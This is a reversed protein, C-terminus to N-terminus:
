VGRFGRGLCVCRVGLVDLEARNEFGLGQYFRVSQPRDAELYIPAPQQAVLQGLAEVLARGWGRRWAWPAVGLVALYWHPEIPRILGLEHNVQSWCEMARIGQRLMCGLQRRFRPAPLPFGGPQLAVFGGVVRDEACLVRAIASGESDLVLARLGARNARIRRRPDSGHIAVNMPNDRFAQALVELLAQRAMRDPAAIM